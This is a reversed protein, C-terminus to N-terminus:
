GEKRYTKFDIPSGPQSEILFRYEQCSRCNCFQWRSEARHEELPKFEPERTPLQSIQGKGM